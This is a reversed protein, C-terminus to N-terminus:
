PGSVWTMMDDAEEYMTERGLSLRFTQFSGIDCRCRMDVGVAVKAEVGSVPRMRSNSHTIKIGFYLLGQRYKASVSSDDMSTRACGLSLSVAYELLCM